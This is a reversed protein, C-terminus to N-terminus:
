KGLVLDVVWCGRVHPGDGRCHNLIAEDECGADQLADALIPMASFDRSDYMKQAVGIATSTRWAPDFLVPRFPNGFIDRLFIALELRLERAQDWNHEDVPNPEDPSDFSVPCNIILSTAHNAERITYVDSVLDFPVFVDSVIEGLGAAQFVPKARKVIAAREEDTTQGEIFREAFDLLDKMRRDQFVDENQRCCLLGFLRLKRPSARDEIQALLESPGRDAEPDNWEEETM